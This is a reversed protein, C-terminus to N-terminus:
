LGTNLGNNVGHSGMCPAPRDGSGAITANRSFEACSLESSWWSPLKFDSTSSEQKGNPDPDITKDPSVKSHCLLPQLWYCLLMGVVRCPWGLNLPTTLTEREEKDHKM